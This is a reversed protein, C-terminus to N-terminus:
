LHNILFRYKRWKVKESFNWYNESKFNDYHWSFIPDNCLSCLYDLFITFIENISWYFLELFSSKGTHRPRPRPYVANITVIWHKALRPWTTVGLWQSVLPDTYHSNDFRDDSLLKCDTSRVCLKTNLIRTITVLHPTNRCVANFILLWSFTLFETEAM